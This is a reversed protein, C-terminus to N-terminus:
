TEDEQMRGAAHREKKYNLQVTNKKGHGKHKDTTRLTCRSMTSRREVVLGALMANHIKNAM